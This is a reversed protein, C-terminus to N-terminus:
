RLYQRSKDPAGWKEALAQITELADESIANRHISGDGRQRPCAMKGIGIFLPPEASLDQEDFDAAINGWYPRCPFVCMAPAIGIRVSQPIAELPMTALLPNAEHRGAQFAPCTWIVDQITHKAGGCLDCRM